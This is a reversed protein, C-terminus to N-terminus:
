PFISGGGPGLISDMFLVEFAMLEGRLQSRGVGVIEYRLM